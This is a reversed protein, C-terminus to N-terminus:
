IHILSLHPGYLNMTTCDLNDAGLYEPPTSHEMKGWALKDLRIPITCAHMLIRTFKLRHFCNKKVKWTKKRSKENKKVTSMRRTSRAVNGLTISKM